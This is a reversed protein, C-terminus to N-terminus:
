QEVWRLETRSRPHLHTGKLAELDDWVAISGGPWWLAVKGDAFRVGVAVCRPEGGAEVTVETVDTERWLFFAQTEGVEAPYPAGEGDERIPERRFEAVELLSATIDRALGHGVQHDVTLLQTLQEALRAKWFPVDETVVFPSATSPTPQDVAFDYTERLISDECAYFEGRVGRLVWWGEPARFEGELTTIRISPPVGVDPDGEDFSAVGDNALVWDIIPTASQASGDFRMAEIM